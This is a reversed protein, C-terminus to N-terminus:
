RAAAPPPPPQQVVAPTDAVVAAALADTNTGIQGSLAVLATTDVGAAALQAIVTDLQGKLGDMLTKASTEVDTSRAVAATLDDMEKSMEVELNSIKSLNFSQTVLMREVRRGGALLSDLMQEVRDEWEERRSPM